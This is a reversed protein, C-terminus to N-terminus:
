RTYTTDSLRWDDFRLESDGVEGFIIDSGAVDFFLNYDSAFSKISYDTGSTRHFMAKGSTVIANHELTFGIHNEPTNYSM